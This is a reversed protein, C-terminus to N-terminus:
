NGTALARDCKAIGRQCIEIKPAYRSILTGEKKQRNWIELSRQYWSRAERYDALQEHATAIQLFSSGQDRQAQANTPDTALKHAAIELAKTASDIAPRPNGAKNELDAQMRYAVALGPAPNNPHAANIRLHQAVALNYYKRAEDVHNRRWELFGHSVYVDALSQQAEANQPDDHALQEFLDVSRRDFPAADDLKGMVGLLLGYTRNNVAANRRFDLNDPADHMLQDFTEVASRFRQAAGPLDGTGQRVTAINANTMAVAERKELNSPDEAALKQQIVLAKEYMALSSAPDGRNAVNNNGLTDGLGGYGDALRTRVEPDSPYVSALKEALAIEKRYTAIAARVDFNHLEVNGLKGYVDALKLSDALNARTVAPASELISAAKRYSALAGKADGLNPYNPRGQVDGVREYATALELNLAADTGRERSLSDLYEVARKVVLRRAPTSGPLDKIADHFEFLYSNALKRVDNFRRNALQSERTTVITAGALALFLISGATVAVKNRGLFRAARYGPTDSRATVPYGDLYRRIDASFQEVSAYRRAPEKRLAMQVINQLDRSVSGRGVTATLPLPPESCIAQALDMMGTTQRYPRRGSLLQYLLVGMSYVDSATSILEGRVQEPSAYEPTLAGMGTQTRDSGDLLKAIGFDLLKPSGESTVLINGPKLDRHVIFNQHAYSLASCVNRFLELLERESLKNESVYRDIPIGEVYEMVLFPRGEATGVDLLRAVNEHNLQALITREQLFRRLVEDTNLSSRILKVAVTRDLDTDRARYVEGMGGEGIIAEIRYRGLLSGELSGSPRGTAPKTLFGTQRASAQAESEIAPNALYEGASAADDHQLLLRLRELLDRDSGCERALFQERTDPPCELARHFLTQLRDVM